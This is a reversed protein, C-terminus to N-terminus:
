IPIVIQNMFSKFSYVIFNFMRDIYARIARCVLLRGDRALGCGSAIGCAACVNGNPLLTRHLGAAIMDQGGMGAAQWPRCLQDIKNVGFLFALFDIVGCSRGHSSTGM